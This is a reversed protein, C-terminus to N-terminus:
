LSEKLTGPSCFDIVIMLIRTCYYSIYFAKIIEFVGKEESAEWEPKDLKSRDEFLGCM